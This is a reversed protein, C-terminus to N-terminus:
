DEVYWWQLVDKYEQIQNDPIRIYMGHAEALVKDEGAQRIEGHGMLVRHTQREIQGTIELQAGIPVPCNFRVELKATMCWFDNLIATRGIVEDLIATVLGGHMVGPYGQHEEHPIYEAYVRGAESRFHMHLGVPNDRGCVFCMKSTPQKEM